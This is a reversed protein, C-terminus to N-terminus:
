KALPCMSTPRCRARSTMLVLPYGWIYAEQAIECALESSINPEQGVVDHGCALIVMMTAMVLLTQM